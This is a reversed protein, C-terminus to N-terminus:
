AEANDEEERNMSGAKKDEEKEYARLWTLLEGNDRLTRAEETTICPREVASRPCAKKSRERTIIRQGRITM